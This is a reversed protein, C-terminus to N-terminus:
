PSGGFRPARKDLFARMGERADPALFLASQAQLEFALTEPLSTEVGRQVGQKILALAEPPGAALLTVRSRVEAHFVADDFVRNVLGLRLAEAADIREGTMMLEMARATGILRPLLYHGAWDPVLGIKVFSQAFKAAAAAYRFDCALALNMGAGAAAGNVAAVVPKAMARIFKVIEGGTLMRQRIPTVDDQAQLSAMNAIDGGACFAKGAGTLVICRVTTDAEAERLRHYLEERMDGGFANMAEPRNLTITAVADAVAYLINSTM